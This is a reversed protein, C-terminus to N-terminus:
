EVFKLGRIDLDLQRMIELNELGIPIDTEYAIQLIKSRAKNYLWYAESSNISEGEYRMINYLRGSVVEIQSLGYDFYKTFDDRSFSDKDKPPHNHIVRSGRLAEKGVLEIDVNSSTGSLEYARGNPSLVLAHEIEANAYKRCFTEIEREIACKDCFGVHRIGTIMTQGDTAKIRDSPRTKTLARSRLCGERALGATVILPYGTMALRFNSKAIVCPVLSVIQCGTFQLM